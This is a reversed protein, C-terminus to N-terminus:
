ALREVSYNFGAERNREIAIGTGTNRTKKGRFVFIVFNKLSTVNLSPSLVATM